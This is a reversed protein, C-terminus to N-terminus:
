ERWRVEFLRVAEDFGKPEFQGRDSFLFNKGSLLGRVTEPVLIEGAEARAAIRAALIVTSGFLDGEDEIPEGANLGVRVDLRECASVNRDAFARQLHIACETAQTVSSFAAMFGDGMTKVEDGGHQRLTHRTIREHERLVARGREDGIRQMMETHGVLDTFLLTQVGHHQGVSPAVQAAGDEIFGNIIGMLEDLQGAALYSMIGRTLPRLRACPIKAALDQANSFAFMPDETRHLVLVPVHVQPLLQTVDTGEFGTLLLRSVFEGSTSQIYV